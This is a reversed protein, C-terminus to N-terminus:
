VFFVIVSMAYNCAYTEVYRMNLAQTEWHTHSELDLGLRFDAMNKHYFDDTDDAM